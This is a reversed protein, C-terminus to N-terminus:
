KQRVYATGMFSTDATLASDMRVILVSDTSGNCDPRMDPPFILQLGVRLNFADSHLIRATGTTTAVTSGVTEATFSAAEDGHSVPEPTTSSGNGSTLTAGEFRRISWEVMDENADGVKTTNAIFLAVIEIPEDAAPNLEFFDYDGNATTFSTAAFRVTYLGRPM